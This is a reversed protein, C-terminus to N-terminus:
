KAAAKVPYHSTATVGDVSVGAVWNTGFLEAYNLPELVPQDQAAWQEPSCAENCPLNDACASLGTLALGAVLGACNHMRQTM